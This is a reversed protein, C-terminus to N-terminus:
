RPLYDGAKDPTIIGLYCLRKLQNADLVAPLVLRGTTIAQKYAAVVLPDDRKAYVSRLQGDFGGRWFSASFEFTPTEVQTTPPWIGELDLSKLLAVQKATLIPPFKIRGELAARRYEATREPNKSAKISQLQGGFTSSFFVQSLYVYGMPVDATTVIDRSQDVQPLFGTMASEMM